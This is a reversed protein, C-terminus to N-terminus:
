FKIEASYQTIPEEIPKFTEEDIKYNGYVRIKNFIISKSDVYEDFFKLFKMRYTKTEYPKLVVKINTDSPIIDQNYIDRKESTIDLLIEQSEMNDCLVLTSGTPNSIQVTYVESDYYTEVNQVNIYINDDSFSKNIDKKDIFNAISIKLEGNSETLVIQQERYSIEDLSTIGKSYFDEFLRLRYIYVNKGNSLNQIDYIKYTDFLEDIYSKFEDINNKFIVEKCGTTLMNFANEYEKTNCFKIFEEVKSDIDKTEAKVKYKSSIAPAHVDGVTLSQNKILKDADQISAIYFNIAIVTLWIIVITIIIKRKEKLWKLIKGKKRVKM